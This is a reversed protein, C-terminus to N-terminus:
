ESQCTRQKAIAKGRIIPKAKPIVGIHSIPRMWGEVCTTRTCEPCMESGTVLRGLNPGPKAKCTANVSVRKTLENM